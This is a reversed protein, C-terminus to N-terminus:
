TRRRVDAARRDSGPMQVGFIARAAEAPSLGPLIAAQQMREADTGCAFRAVAAIEDDAHRDTCRGAWSAISAAGDRGIRVARVSAEDGSRRVSDADVFVAATDRSDGAVWWWEASQTPVAVTGLAATILWFV